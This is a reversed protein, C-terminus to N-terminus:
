EIHQKFNVGIEIPFDKNILESDEEDHLGDDHWLLNLTIHYQGADELLVTGSYKGNNYTMNLESSTMSFTINDHNEFVSSDVTFEYDVSVGADTTDLLMTYTGVTGPAFYGAEVNDNGNLTLNNFYITRDENMINEDIKIIWDVVDLEATGSGVTELLAFTRNVTFILFAIVIVSILLTKKKLFSM